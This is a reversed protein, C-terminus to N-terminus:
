RRVLQLCKECHLQDTPWVFWHTGFIIRLDKAGQPVKKYFTVLQIEDQTGKVPKVTDSGCYNCVRLPDSEYWVMAEEKSPFGEQKKRFYEGEDVYQEAPLIETVRIKRNFRIAPARSLFSLVILGLGFVALIPFLMDLAFSRRILEARYYLVERQISQKRDPNTELDSGMQLAKYENEISNTPYTSLKTIGPLRLAGWGLFGVIILLIGLKKKM